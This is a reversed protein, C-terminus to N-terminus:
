FDERELQIKWTFVKRNITIVLATILINNNYM